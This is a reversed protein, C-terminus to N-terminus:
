ASWTPRSRLFNSSHRSFFGNVASISLSTFSPSFAPTVPVGANKMLPRISDPAWGNSFNLSTISSSSADDFFDDYRGRPRRARPALCRAEDPPTASGPNLRRHQFGGPDLFGEPTRIAGGRKINAP